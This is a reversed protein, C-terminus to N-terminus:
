HKNPRKHTARKPVYRERVGRQLLETLTAGELIVFNQPYWYDDDVDELPPMDAYIDEVVREAPARQDSM